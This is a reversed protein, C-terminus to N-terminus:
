TCVTVFAVDETESHRRIMIYERAGDGNIYLEVNQIEGPQKRTM